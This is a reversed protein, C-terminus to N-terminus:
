GRREETVAALHVPEYGLRGRREARAIAVWTAAGVAAAALGVAIAPGHLDHTSTAHASLRVGLFSGASEGVGMAAASLALLSGLESVAVTATASAELTPLALCEGASFLAVGLAGALASGAVSIVIVGLGLLAIGGAGATPRRDADVALWRGVPVQLLIVMVANLAFLWGIADQWGGNVALLPLSAYLQSYLVFAFITVMLVAWAEWPLRPRLSRPREAAARAPIDLPGYDVLGAGVAGALAAAGALAFAAPRGTATAVGALFLPGVAAGLNVSTALVSLPRVASQRRDAAAVYAVKLVLLCAGFGIGIATVAAFFSGPGRVSALFISGGAVALFCLPISHRLRLRLVIPAVLTRGFRLVLTAYAIGLAAGTAGMHAEHTAYIALIALEGRVVANMWFHLGLPLPARLLARLRGTV